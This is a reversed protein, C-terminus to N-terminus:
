SFAKHVYESFSLSKSLKKITGLLSVNTITYIRTKLLKTQSKLPFIVMEGGM